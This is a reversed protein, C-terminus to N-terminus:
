NVNEIINKVDISTGCFKDNKVACLQLQSSTQIQKETNNGEISLFFHLILQIAINFALLNLYYSCCNFSERIQKIM